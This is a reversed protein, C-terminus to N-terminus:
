RTWRPASRPDLRDYAVAAIQIHGGDWLAVAPAVTLSAACLTGIALWSRM